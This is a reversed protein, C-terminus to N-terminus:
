EGALQTTFRPLQAPRRPQDVLVRRCCLCVYRSLWGRRTSRHATPCVSSPDTQPQIRSSHHRLQSPRPPPPGLALSPTIPHCLRVTVTVTVTVPRRLSHRGLSSSGVARRSSFIAYHRRTHGAPTSSPPTPAPSARPTCPHLRRRRLTIVVDVVDISTYHLKPPTRTPCHHVHTHYTHHIHPTYPTYKPHIHPTYLLTYLTSIRHIPTYICLTYM